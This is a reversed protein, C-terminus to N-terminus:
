AKPWFCRDEPTYTVGLTDLQGAPRASARRTPAAYRGTRNLALNPRLNHVM